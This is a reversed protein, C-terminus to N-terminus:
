VKICGYKNVWNFVRLQPRLKIIPNILSFYHEIKHKLEIQFNMLGSVFDM